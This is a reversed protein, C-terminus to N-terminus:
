VPNGALKVQTIVMFNNNNNNNSMFHQLHVRICIKADAPFDEIISIIKVM